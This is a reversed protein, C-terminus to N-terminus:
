AVQGKNKLGTGLYAEIVQENAKIQDLTGEALVRGEAMPIVPGCIKGIFDMDHEMVVFTYDREQSPRLITDGIPFPDGSM